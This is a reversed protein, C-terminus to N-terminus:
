FDYRVNIGYTRPRLPVGYAFNPAVPFVTQYAFENTVNTGYINVALREFQIGARLDLHSYSSNDWNGTPALSFNSSYKGTQRWTVGFNLESNSLPVIYDAAISATSEPNGPLSEGSLGGLNPEDDKLEADAISLTATVLFNTFLEGSLSAEIGSADVDGVANGTETLGTVPNVFQIQADAWDIFYVGLDYTLRGDAIRGKIGAEYSWLDDPSFSPTGFIMGGIDVVLNAGGPRYGSAARAYINLADSVRYRTNFLWTTVTDETVSDLDDLIPSSLAGTFDQRIKNENDSYRLGVTVDWADTFAYTVNGFLALETYEQNTLLNVLNIDPPDEITIQFEESEQKTYYAGVIWEFAGDSNSTLRFEQTFRDLDSGSSLAVTTGPPLLPGLQQTVDSLNEITGTQDSTVSTFTGFSFDIDAVLSYLDLELDRPAEFETTYRGFIPQGTSPDFTEYSASDFDAEHHYVSGVLDFNDTVAWKAAISGGKYDHDDINEEGTIGNDIFGGNSDSYGSIAIAFQDQALPASFRGRILTNTDGKDTDSYDASVYGEFEELNPEKTIYRVVGGVSSAGYLTGQPGRVVEIRDLDYLSADLALSSAFSGVVGGYPVDDIYTGVTPAGGVYIGRIVLNGIGPSGGDQAQLNPIFDAISNINTVGNQVASTADFVSLSVPVDIAREERRSAVVLIEELAAEDVESQEVQQAFAGGHLIVLGAAILLTPRKCISSINM